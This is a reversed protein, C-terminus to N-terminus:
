GSVYRKFAVIADTRRPVCERTGCAAAITIRGSGDANPVRIVSFALVVRSNFPGFTQIVTDTATQIKYDSNGAIWAQARQWYLDCQARSSCTLPAAAEPSDAPNDPPVPMLGCAALSLALLAALRKM